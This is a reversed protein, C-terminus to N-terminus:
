TEPLPSSLVFDASGIKADIEEYVQSPQEDASHDDQASLDLKPSDDSLSQFFDHDIFVIPLEQPIVGIHADLMIPAIQRPSYAYIPYERASCENLADRSFDANSMLLGHDCSLDKIQNRFKIVDHTDIARIHLVKVVVPIYNIGRSEEARIIASGDEDFCQSIITYNLHKLIVTALQLWAQPSMDRLRAILAQLSCLRLQRSTDYLKSELKLIHSALFNESLTWLDPPIHLFAPRKGRSVRLANDARMSLVVAQEHIPLVNDDSLQSAILNAPMPAGSQRLLKVIAASLNFHENPQATLETKLKSVKLQRIAEEPIDSLDDFKDEVGFPARAFRTQVIKRFQTDDKDLLELAQADDLLGVNVPPFEVNDVSAPLTPENTKDLIDQSWGRLAFEGSDLRILAGTDSRQVARLLCSAMVVDPTHGVHGLLRRNVAFQTITKYDLPRQATRLVEIAAEFFTM